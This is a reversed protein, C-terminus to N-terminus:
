GQFESSHQTSGNIAAAGKELSIGKTSCHIVLQGQLVFALGGAELPSLHMTPNVGLPGRRMTLGLRPKV